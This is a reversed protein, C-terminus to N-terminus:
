RCPAHSKSPQPAPATIMAHAQKKKKESDAGRHGRIFEGHEIRGRFRLRRKLSPKHALEIRQAVFAARRKLHHDLALRSAFAPLLLPPRKKQLADTPQRLARRQIRLDRARQLALAIAHLFDDQLRPGRKMERRVKVQGVRRRRPRRHQHRTTMTMLALRHPLILQDAHQQCTMAHRRHAVIGDPLTLPILHEIQRLFARDEVIRRMHLHWMRIHAENAGRLVRHRSDAAGQDACIRRLEADPIAHADDVVQLAARVDERIFDAACSVATAARLRRIQHRQIIADEGRCRTAVERGEFLEDLGFTRLIALLVDGPLDSEAHILRVVADHARRLGREDARARPVHREIEAARPFQKAIRLAEIRAEAM